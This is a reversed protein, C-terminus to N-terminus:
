FCLALFVMLVHLGLVKGRSAKWEEKFHWWVAFLAYEDMLGIASHLRLRHVPCRRLRHVERLRLRSPPGFDPRRPASFAFLLRFLVLCWTVLGGPKLFTVAVGQFM